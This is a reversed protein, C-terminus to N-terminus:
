RSGGILRAVAGGPLFASVVEAFFFIAALIVAVKLMKDATKGVRELWAALRRLQKDTPVYTALALKIRTLRRKCRSLRGSSNRAPWVYPHRNKVKAVFELRDFQIPNYSNLMIAKNSAPRKM